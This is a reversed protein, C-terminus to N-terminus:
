GCWRNPRSLRMAHKHAIADERKAVDEVAGVVRAECAIDERGLADTGGHGGHPPRGGVM